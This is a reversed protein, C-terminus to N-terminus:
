KEKAINWIEQITENSIKIGKLINNIVLNNIAFETSYEWEILSLQKETAELSEIYFKIADFSIEKEHLAIRLQKSTVHTIEEKEIEIPPVAYMALQQQWIEEPTKDPLQLEGIKIGEYNRIDRKM